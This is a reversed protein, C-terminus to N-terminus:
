RDALFRAGLDLQKSFGIRGLGRIGKKFIPKTIVLVCGILESGQSSTDMM